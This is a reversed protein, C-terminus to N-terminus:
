ISLRLSTKPHKFIFNNIYINDIASVTGDLRCALDEPKQLDIIDSTPLKNLRGNAFYECEYGLDFLFQFVQKYRSNHRWEIECIIFPHFADLLRRGGELVELEYGEVDIKIFDISDGKNIQVEFFSDLSVQQVSTEVVNSASSVPNSSSLTATHLAEEDMGATYMTMEDSVAGVASNVLEVNSCFNVKSLYNFHTFGPEFAFVKKSKSKLIWSYSGLAAGIDVAFNISASDLNSILKMEIEPYALKSWIFRRFIGDFLPVKALIRKFLNKINKLM